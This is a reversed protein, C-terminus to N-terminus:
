QWKVKYKNEKMITSVVDQIQELNLKNVLKMVCDIKDKEYLDVNNNMESLLFKVEDYDWSLKDYDRELEDYDDDLEDLDYELDDIKNNLKEKESEITCINKKLDVMELKLDDIIDIDYDRLRNDVIINYMNDAIYKNITNKVDADKIDLPLFDNLLTIIYEPKIYSLDLSLNNGLKKAIYSIFCLTDYKGSDEFIAEDITLYLCGGCKLPKSIVFENDLNLCIYTNQISEFERIFNKTQESFKTEKLLNEINNYTEM